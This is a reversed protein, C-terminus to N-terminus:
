ATTSPSPSHSAPPLTMPSRASSTLAPPTPTRAKPFTSASSSATTPPQYTFATDKSRPDRAKERNGLSDFGQYSVIDASVANTALNKVLQSIATVNGRRTESTSLSNQVTGALPTFPFPNGGAAHVDYTFSTRSLELDGPGFTTQSLPLTRLSPSYIALNDDISVYSDTRIETHTRRLWGASVAGPCNNWTYTAGGITGQGPVLAPAAGYDYESSDTLNAFQVAVPLLSYGATRDYLSLRGSVQGTDLLTTREQCVQASGDGVLGFVSEVQHLGGKKTLYEKGEYPHSPGLYPQTSPPPSANQLSIAPGGNAPNVGQPTGGALGGARYPYSFFHHESTVPVTVNLGTATTTFAGTFNVGIAQTGYATVTEPNQYTTTSEVPSAAYRSGGNLYTRREALRRYIFPTWNPPLPVSGALTYEAPALVQGSEYVGTGLPLGARYDYDIAGGAPLTLRSLEGYINYRCTYGRNNPLNIATIVNIGFQNAYNKPVGPALEPFLKRTVDHQNRVYLPETSNVSRLAAALPSKCVSIVRPTGGTGLYSITDCTSGPTGYQITITRGLADTVVTQGGSQASISVRNGNRDVINRVEGSVIEYRLGNKMFLTGSGAPSSIAPGAPATANPERDGEDTASVFVMGSGDRAAFRRGRNVGSLAGCSVNTPDPASVSYLATEAGNPAVFALHTWTRTFGYPQPLGPTPCSSVTDGFQRRLLVGPTYGASTATWWKSNASTSYVVYPNGGGGPTIVTSDTELDWPPRTINATITYGAEGRGGVALLPMSVGVQGNYINISEFGSLAYSGTPSGPTLAVPVTGDLSSYGAGRLMQAVAAVLLIHRM